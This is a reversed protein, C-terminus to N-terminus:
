ACVLGGVVAELQEVRAGVVELGRAGDAEDVAHVHDRPDRARRGAVEVQDQRGLHGGRGVLVTVGGKAINPHNPVVVCHVAGGILRQGCRRVHLDVRGGERGLFEQHDQALITGAVSIRGSGEAAHAAVVRQEAARTSVVQVTAGAIVHDDTAGAGVSHEAAIAIVLDMDVAIAVVADVAAGAGIGEHQRQGFAAHSRHRQAPDCARPQAVLRAREIAVPLQLHRAGEQLVAEVDAVRTRHGHHVAVERGQHRGRPHLLQADAPRIARDETLHRDDRAGAAVVRQIARHGGTALDHRARRAVVRDSQVRGTADGHAAAAVVRQLAGVTAIPQVTTRARVAELATATVVPLDAVFAVVCEDATVTRIRGAEVDARTRDLVGRDRDAGVVAGDGAELHQVAAIHAGRQDPVGARLGPRDRVQAAVRGRAEANVRRRADLEQGEIREDSAHASQPHVQTRQRAHNCVVEASEIGGGLVLSINGGLPRSGRQWGTHRADDAGRHLAVTDDAFDRAVARGVAGRDVAEDSGDRAQGGGGEAEHELIEFGAAAAIERPRAGVRGAGARGHQVSRAVHRGAGGAARQHQVAAHRDLQEVRAVASAAAEGVVRAVVRADGRVGAVVGVAAVVLGVVAVEVELHQRGIVARTAHQEAEVLDAGRDVAEAEVQHPTLGALARDVKVHMQGIARDVAFYGSAVDVAGAALLEVGERDVGGLARDRAEGEVLGPGGAHAGLHPVDEGDVVQRQDHRALGIRQRTRLVPLLDEPAHRRHNGKLLGNREVGQHVAGDEAALIPRGCRRRRELSDGGVARADRADGAHTQGPAGGRLVAVGPRHRRAADDGLRTEVGDARADLCKGDAEGAQVSRGLREGRSDICAIVQWAVLSGIELGQERGVAVVDGTSWAPLVQVTSRESVHDPAQAAVIAQAATAACVRDESAIASITDLVERRYLQSSIDDSAGVRDPAAVRARNGRASVVRGIVTDLQHACANVVEVSRAGDAVDISHVDDRANRPGSGPIERQDQRGLHGGRGVPITIPHEAVDADHAVM